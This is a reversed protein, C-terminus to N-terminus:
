WPEEDVLADANAEAAADFEGDSPFRRYGEAVRRGIEVGRHSPVKKSWGAM